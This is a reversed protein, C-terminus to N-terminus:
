EVEGVPEMGDSPRAVVVFVREMLPEDGAREISRLDLRPDCIAIVVLLLDRYLVRRDEGIQRRRRM